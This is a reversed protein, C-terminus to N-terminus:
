EERKRRGKKIIRQEEKRKGRNRQMKRGGGRRERKQQIFEPRNWKRTGKWDQEGLRLGETSKFKAGRGDDRM